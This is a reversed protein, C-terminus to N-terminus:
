LHKADAPCDSALMRARISAHASPIPVIHWHGSGSMRMDMTTPTFVADGHVHYLEDHGRIEGEFHVAGDAVQQVPYTCTYHHNCPGLMFKAINKPEICYKERKKVLGLWDTTVDWYGPNILAPTQAAAAGPIAVLALALVFLRKM